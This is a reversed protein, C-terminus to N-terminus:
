SLWKSSIQCKRSPNWNIRSNEGSCAIGSRRPVSHLEGTNLREFLDYRVIESSQDSLTIVKIPRTMFHLQLNTPLNDFTLGAFRSLKQLSTLVQRGNLGMAARLEDDGAFKVISSLRQVGDVVEWTSDINTAMFLSPIPIGLLISEIFQSVQEPKWRFQRQYAPAVWIQKSKSMALLQQVHIDFTDFDVTRRQTKLQEELAFPIATQLGPVTKSMRKGKKAMQERPRTGWVKASTQSLPSLTVGSRELLAAAPQRSRGGSCVDSCPRKRVRRQFSVPSSHIKSLAQFLPAM